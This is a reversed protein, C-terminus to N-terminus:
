DRHSRGVEMQKCCLYRLSWFVANNYSFLNGPHPL